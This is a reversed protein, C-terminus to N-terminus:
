FRLRFLCPSTPSARRSISTVPATRSFRPGAKELSGSAMTKHVNVTYFYIQRTDMEFQMFRLWGDGGASGLTTNGQYDTLIQYVPNGGSNNDIRYNEGAYWVEISCAQWQM